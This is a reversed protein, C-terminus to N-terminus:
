RSTLVLENSGIYDPPAGTPWDSRGAWLTITVFTYMEEKKKYIRNIKGYIKATSNHVKIIVSDNLDFREGDYLMKDYNMIRTGKYSEPWYNIRNM